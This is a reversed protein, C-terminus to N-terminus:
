FWIYVPDGEKIGLVKAGDPSGTEIEAKNTDFVSLVMSMKGRECFSRQVLVPLAFEGAKGITVHVTDGDKYGKLKFLGSTANLILRGRFDVKEVYYPTKAPAPRSSGDVIIVDGPEVVVVRGKNDLNDDDVEITEYDFDDFIDLFSFISDAALASVAVAILLVATLVKKM